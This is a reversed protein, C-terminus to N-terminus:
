NEGNDGSILENTIFTYEPNIRVTKNEKDIIFVTALFTLQETNQAAQNNNDQLSQNITDMTQAVVNASIKPQETFPTGGGSISM